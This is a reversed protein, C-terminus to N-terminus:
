GTVRFGVIIKDFLKSRGSDEQEIPVTVAVVWLDPGAPLVHAFTVRNLGGVSDRPAGPDVDTTTYVLEQGPESGHVVAHEVESRTLEAYRPSTSTLAALYTSISHKPYFGPFREVTLQRTGDPSVYHV